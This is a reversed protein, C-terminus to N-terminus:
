VKLGFRKIKDNLTRRPLGLLDAARETSGHCRELAAHIERAEFAAVREPLTEAARTDAPPQDPDGPDLGLVLREAAARLERANGPWSRRSLRARLGIPIEPLMRAHRRAAESAFHAFMLAIDGPMDRLSPTAIEAGALRYYLDARFGGDFAMAKLNVKSTSVVRIDLARLRHEGLRTVAREELVRLMKAQIAPPMTDIEDLLLTGGDALELKGPRDAVAGPFAGAAHGFMEIEFLSEPVAACNLAVFRGQGRPGAAHLKRAVLEKGTGTEGTVLVNVDLGALATVKARLGAMAPSDGFIEQGPLRAKLRRLEARTERARLARRIVLLLHDANYPKELFDEAGARIAQVAQPVDGHGTIVIVAHDGGGEDLAAILDMGDMAPMRLDTVIVGPDATDLAALAAAAGPFAAVEYGAAEILDAAAVRHDADDDVVFVLGSM